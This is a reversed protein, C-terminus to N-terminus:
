TNGASIIRCLSNYKQVREIGKQRIEILEPPTPLRGNSSVFLSIDEELDLETYVCINNLRRRAEELSWTSAVLKAISDKYVEQASLFITLAQIISVKVRRTGGRISYDGYYGRAALVAIKGAETKISSTISELVEIDSRSLGRMAIYGRRKAIQSIRRLLYDVDLEGDSGPSHVAVVADVGINVAASLGLSDALPSWLNEEDGRALIDGGVDFVIIAECGHLSLLEQIARRIGIEGKWGELIYVPTWSTMRSVQCASPLVTRGNRIAVCEQPNVVRALYEGLYEVGQFSHLPIPGPNPDYLFREWALVALVGHTGEERLLRALYLASGVDGGGGTSLILICRPKNSFLQSCM